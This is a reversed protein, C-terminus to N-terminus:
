PVDCIHEELLSSMDCRQASIPVRLKYVLWTILQHESICVTWLIILKKTCIFATPIEKFM